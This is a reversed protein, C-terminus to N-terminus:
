GRRLRRLEGSRLAPRRCLRGCRDRGKRSRCFICSTGRFTLLSPQATLVLDEANPMIRCGEVAVTGRWQRWARRYFRASADCHRWAQGMAGSMENGRISLASARIGMAWCLSPASSFRLKRKGDRGLRPPVREKLWPCPLIMQRQSPLPLFAARLGTAGGPECGKWCLDRM